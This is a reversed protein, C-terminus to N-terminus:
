RSLVVKKTAVATSTKVEVVYVGNAKSGLDIKEVIYSLNKFENNYVIEGLVNTVTISVDSRNDLQSTIVFEGTTPNPYVTFPIVSNLNAIGTLDTCRVSNKIAARQANIAANMRTSQGNTFMNMCNDDTYDMYNMFMVGNGATCADTHPFAPCGYNESGQNPTDSVYDSSGCSGGDDAWVHHLNFWHGIEHTLTRGLNYSPTTGHYTTGGVTGYLVTCGDTAAAGGPFQSIGLLQTSSGSFNCIWLNLYQNRDWADDGGLSSYKVNNNSLPDFGTVTVSKRVIGSTYNGSPDQQALCFQIHTDATLPKFPAPTNATDTNLHAYDKNLTNIQDFIRNNSINQGTTHYLVHFVVPITVITSSSRMGETQDIFKELMEEDAAMRSALTPDQQKQIALKEMTGCRKIQQANTTFSFLLAFAAILHLKKRM